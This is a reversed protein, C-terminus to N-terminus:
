QVVPVIQITDPVVVPTVQIVDPVVIPATTTTTTTIPNAQTSYAGSGLVGVGSLTQDASSATDHSDTSTTTTVTSVNAQPLVTAAVVPAQIKGAINVFASTTAVSTQMANNSAGIAVQANSHIGYAQVLGPVLIQAWQLAQNPAPAQLQTQGAGMALAMVAAVQASSDGKNAIDRLANSRAVSAAESSKAYQVYEPSACASLLLALIIAIYKM